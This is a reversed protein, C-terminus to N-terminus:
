TKEVMFTKGCGVCVVERMVKTGPTQSLKDSAREMDGETVNDGGIEPHLNPQVNDEGTAGPDELFGEKFQNMNFGPLDLSETDPDAMGSLLEYLGDETVKGFQSVYGLLREKAEELSSAEIDCVPVLGGPLVWGDRIMDNLVSRRQTGDLIKSGWVFLPADFGKQEIRRRLKARNAPSLEKLEGQIVELDALPAMRSGECKIQIVNGDMCVKL